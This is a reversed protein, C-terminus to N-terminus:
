DTQKPQCYRTQPIKVSLFWDELTYLCVGVTQQLRCVYVLRSLHVLSTPLSLCWDLSSLLAPVVRYPCVGIMRGLHAPVLRHLLSAGDLRSLHAPALKNVCEDILRSLYDPVLRHLCTGDLRHLYAPVLRSLNAPVLTFVPM